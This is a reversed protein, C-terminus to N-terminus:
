QNCLHSSCSSSFFVATLEHRNQKMLMRISLYAAGPQNECSELFFFFFFGGFFCGCECSDNHLNTKQIVMCAVLSTLLLVWPSHLEKERRAIRRAIPFNVSLQVVSYVQATKTM